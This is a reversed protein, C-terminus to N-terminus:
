VYFSLVYIKYIAVKTPLMLPIKNTGRVLSLRYYTEFINAGSDGLREAKVKATLQRVGFCCM